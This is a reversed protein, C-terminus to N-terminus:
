GDDQSILFDRYRKLDKFEDIVELNDIDDIEGLELIERSSDHDNDNLIDDKESLFEQLLKLAHM